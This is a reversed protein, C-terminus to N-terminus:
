LLLSESFLKNLANENVNRPGKCVDVAMVHSNSECFGGDQINSLTRFVGRSESGLKLFM